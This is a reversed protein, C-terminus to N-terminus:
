PMYVSSLLLVIVHSCNDLYESWSKLLKNSISEKHLKQFEM